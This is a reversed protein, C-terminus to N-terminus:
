LSPSTGLVCVYVCMDYVCSMCMVMQPAKKTSNGAAAVRVALTLSIEGVRVCVCM